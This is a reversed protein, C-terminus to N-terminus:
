LTGLSAWTWSLPIRSDQLCELVRWLHQVPRQATDSGWPWCPPVRRKLRALAPCGSSLLPRSGVQDCILEWKKENDYQSLLQVKDPPLNMCNQPPPPCPLFIRLIPGWHPPQPSMPMQLFGVLPWSGLLDTWICSDGDGEGWSIFLTLWHSFWPGPTPCGARPAVALPHCTIQIRTQWVGPGPSQAGLSGGQGM